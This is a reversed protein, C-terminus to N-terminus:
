VAVPFILKELGGTTEANQYNEISIDSFQVKFIDKLEPNIKITPYPYTSRELQKKVIEIQDSYCHTDGTTHIFENVDMDTVHALLHLLVSYQTINSCAGVPVDVSRQYMLLSLRNKGGEEVPPEVFCQFMAHCATLCGKNLMVNEQPSVGEFSVFEPVWATVILRSSFPRLKLNRILENLQDVNHYYKAQFFYNRNDEQQQEWPSLVQEKWNKKEEENLAIPVAPPAGDGSAIYYEEWEKKWVEMKDSPMQDEPVQPWLFNYEGNPANRWMAGYMPGIKEEYRAMLATRLEPLQEPAFQDKHKELFADIDKEKVAWADWFFCNEAKLDKNDTNGRIMWILERIAGKYPVARTTPIPVISGSLDYHTQTGIIKLRGVGTRDSTSVGKEIINKLLSEHHNNEM